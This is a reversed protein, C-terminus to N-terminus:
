PADPDAITPSPKFRGQIIGSIARHNYIRAAKAANHIRDISPMTAKVMDEERVQDFQNSARAYLELAEVAEGWCYRARGTMNPADEVFGSARASVVQLLNLIAVYPAADEKSCAEILDRLEHVLAPNLDPFPASLIDQLHFAAPTQLRPPFANERWAHALTQAYACIGSLTLPATALAARLRREYRQQQHRETQQIQRRLFFVSVAAAGVALSASVIQEPQKVWTFLIIAEFHGFFTAICDTSWPLRCGWKKLGLIFALGIWVLFVGLATRMAGKMELIKTM